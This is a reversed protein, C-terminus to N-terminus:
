CSISIRQAPQFHPPTLTKGRRLPRAQLTHRWCKELIESYSACKRSGGELRWRPIGGTRKEVPRMAKRQYPSPSKVDMHLTHLHHGPFTLRETHAPSPLGPLCILHSRPAESCLVRRTPLWLRPCPLPYKECADPHTEIKVRLIYKEREIVMKERGQWFLV